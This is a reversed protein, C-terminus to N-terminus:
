VQHLHDRLLFPDVEGVLDDMVSAREAHRTLWFARLARHLIDAARRVLCPGRHLYMLSCLRLTLVWWPSGPVPLLCILLTKLDIRTGKRRRNADIPLMAWLLSLVTAMVSGAWIVELCFGSIWGKVM